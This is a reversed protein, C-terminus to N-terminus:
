KMEKIHQQLWQLEHIASSTEMARTREWDEDAFNCVEHYRNAEDIHEAKRQELLEIRDQIYNQIKEVKTM